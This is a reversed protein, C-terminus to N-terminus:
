EHFRDAAGVQYKEGCGQDYRIRILRAPLSGFVSQIEVLCARQVFNAVSSPSASPNPSKM